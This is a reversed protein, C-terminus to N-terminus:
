WGPNNGTILKNVAKEADPIPFYQYASTVRFFPAVQSGQNWNIGSLALDVQENMKDVFEGWRILDFRRTFEFCLEMAREDKIANRFAIQSNLENTNDSIGARIRVDRLCEKALDTPSGWYENEAEAVMLLVDSYRLIPFNISTLNKNRKAAPEYERRFKACCLDKRVKEPAVAKKYVDGRQSGKNVFEKGEDAGDYDYSKEGYWGSGTVLEYLEQNEFTRGVIGTKGQIDKDADSDLARYTFPAINWTFREKDNNSTYLDYLKPTAWLFGYSYGPDAKGVLSSQSSFDACQLGITNGIRGESRVDGTGDGAFEVEWISENSGSTNYKDSCMDIFTDWYDEALEHGEGMVLQGFHSAREFYSKAEAPEPQDDRNHEGAWFLYVRALIGWAASKSIRNPKYGLDKASLLGEDAAEEMEKVIFKYIVNKDTRAIDKDTVTGSSYTSELKLPVDGWCQVLNFYYFARLFRAESKYQATKEASMSPVNDIHELLMNAREIGSYLDAWFQTVAADSTTTNNCILGTNSIRGTSGGYFELDDGGALVMYDNGYFSTQSLNAYIGTLFNSVETENQFYNEPTIKYPEKELFDCSAMTCAAVLSLFTIKITKM